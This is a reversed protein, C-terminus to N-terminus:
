STESILSSYEKRLIFTNFVINEHVITCWVAEFCKSAAEPQGQEDKAGAEETKAGVGQKEEMEVEEEKHWTGFSTLM